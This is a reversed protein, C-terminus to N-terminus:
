RGAESNRRPRRPSISMGKRNGKREIPRASEPLTSGPGNPWLGCDFRRAVLQAARFPPGSATMARDGGRARRRPRAAGGDPKKAGGAERRRASLGRSVAHRGERRARESRPRMSSQPSSLTKKTPLTRGAARAGHDRARRGRSRHQRSLPAKLRQLDRHYGSTLKATIRSSKRFAGLATAQAGRVLEFVDPNRKQPMISSGTTMEAPLAVYAFESTYFLLLDSALRGHRGAAGRDRLM